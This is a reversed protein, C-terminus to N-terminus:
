FKQYNLSCKLEDLRKELRAIEARTEKDEEMMRHPAVFKKEVEGIFADIEDFKQSAHPAFYYAGAEQYVRLVNQRAQEVWKKASDLATMMQESKTM